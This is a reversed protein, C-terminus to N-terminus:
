KVWVVEALKLGSSMLKKYVQRWRLLYNRGRLSPKNLGKFVPIYESLDKSKLEEDSLPAKLTWLYKAKTNLMQRLMLTLTKASSRISLFVQADPQNNFIYDVQWPQLEIDLAENIKKVKGKQLFKFM